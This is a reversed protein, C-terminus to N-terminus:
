VEIKKFKRTISLTKCVHSNHRYVLYIAVVAMATIATLRQLLSCCGYCNATVWNYCHAEAFYPFATPDPGQPPRMNKSFSGWPPNKTFGAWNGNRSRSSRNHGERVDLSSDRLYIFIYSHIFVIFIIHTNSPLWNAVRWKKKWRSLFFNGLRPDFEHDESGPEYGRVM